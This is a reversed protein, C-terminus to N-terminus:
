SMIYSDTYYLPQNRHKQILIIIISYPGLYVMLINSKKEYNVYLMYYHQNLACAEYIIM